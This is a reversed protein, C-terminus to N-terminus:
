ETQTLSPNLAWENLFYKEELFKNEPRRVVNLLGDWDNLHIELETQVIYQLESEYYKKDLIAYYMRERPYAGPDYNWIADESYGNEKLLEVVANRQRQSSNIFFVDEFEEKIEKLGKVEVGEYIQGLKEPNNDCFASIQRWGFNYLFRMVEKGYYSYGFIVVNKHRSALCVAEDWRGSEKNREAQRRISQYDAPLLANKAYDWWIDSANGQLNMWPKSGEAYHLIVPHEKAEELEDKSFDTNLLLHMRGYFRRFLNYKLPLYKIRGQCCRNLIDQDAYLYKEGVCSLFREKLGDNRIASTNMVLVGSNIYDRMDSIGVTKAYGCNKEFFYQVGGDKVAAIYDEQIDTAYLASIDGLIVVDCDIYLCKDYQQLYESALLRFMASVTIGEKQSVHEFQRSDVNLFTLNCNKFINKIRLLFIRNQESLDESHMIYIDYFYQVSASKLMSWIAVYAPVSFRDDTSFVVPIKGEM